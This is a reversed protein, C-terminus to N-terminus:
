AVTPAVGCGGRGLTIGGGEAVRGEERYPVEDPNRSPKGEGTTILSRLSGGIYFGV